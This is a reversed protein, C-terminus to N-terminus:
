GTGNTTDKRRLASAKEQLEAIQEHIARLELIRQYDQASVDPLLEFVETGLAAALKYLTDIAFRQRGAEMNVISVRTLGIMEALDAQTFGCSKRATVIREGIASYISERENHKM